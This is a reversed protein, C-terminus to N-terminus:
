EYKEGMKISVNPADSVAKFLSNIFKTREVCIFHDEMITGKLLKLPFMETEVGNPSVQRVDEIAISPEEWVHRYGLKTLCLAGGNLGVGAGVPDLM